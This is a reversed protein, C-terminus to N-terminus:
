SHVPRCEIRTCLEQYANKKGLKFANLNAEVTKSPVAEEISAIIVNEEIPFEKLASLCGLFVTNEVAINGSEKALELAGVVAINPTWSQLKGVIDELTVYKATKDLVLKSTETPPHIIRKNLLITGKKKLFEIYRLAEIAELSIIIDAGGYPILPSFADKGIRMHVFVSGSRQSLGYMEGTIAKIGSKACANGIVSTLLVLGQGGVGCLFIDYSMNESRKAKNIFNSM